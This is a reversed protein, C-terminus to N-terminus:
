SANGADITRKAENLAEISQQEAPTLQVDKTRPTYWSYCSYYNTLDPSDFIYGHRAYIENRIFFHDHPPYNMLEDFTIPVKDSHPFIFGNTTFAMPVAGSTCESAPIPATGETESEYARLVNVNHQELESLQISENAHRSVYWSQQHFHNRFQEDEFTYGHRAYIENRMYTIEYINYGILDDFTLWKTESEPLLYSDNPQQLRPLERTTTQPTVPTPMVTENSEPTSRELETVREDDTMEEEDTEDPPDPQPAVHEWETARQDDGHIWSIALPHSAPRGIYWVFTIVILVACTSGIIWRTPSQNM